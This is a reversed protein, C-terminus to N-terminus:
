GKSARADLIRRRTYELVMVANRLEGARRPGTHNITESLNQADGDSLRAIAAIQDAGKMAAYGAIRREATEHLARVM